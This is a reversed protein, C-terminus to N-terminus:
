LFRIRFRNTTWRSIVKVLSNADDEQKPLEDEKVRRELMKSFMEITKKENQLKKEIRNATTNLIVVEQFQNLEISTQVEDTVTKYYKEKVLAVIFPASLIVLLAIVTTKTESFSIKSRSRRFKKRLLKM